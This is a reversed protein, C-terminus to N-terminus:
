GTHLSATLPFNWDHLLIIKHLPLFNVSIRRLQKNVNRFLVENRRVSNSFNGCKSLVKQGRQHLDAEYGDVGNGCGRFEVFVAFIHIKQFSDDGSAQPRADRTYM